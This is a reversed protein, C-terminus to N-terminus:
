DRFYRFCQLEYRNDRDNDGFDENEPMARLTIESNRVAIYSGDGPFGIDSLFLGGDSSYNGLLDTLETEDLNGSQGPM